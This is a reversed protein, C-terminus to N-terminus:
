RYFRSLDRINAILVATVETLKAAYDESHQGIGFAGHVFEHAALSMIEFRGAWASSFRCRFSRSNYKQNKVIEAPSLYYVLGYESSHECEAKCEEDFIFGISFAGEMDHLEYLRKLTMAWARVLRKAYASFQDGPLYYAPTEMGACQKCIFETGISVPRNERSVAVSRISGTPQSSAEPQSLTQVLAAIDLGPQVKPQKGEAKVKEGQYRKYEARQQKLASRTDVALEDLLQDLEDAYRYQLRDRSAVLRQGSTGTLEVLVCGKFKINRTFMPQGGIRVVLLNSFQQNSYVKGWEYERRPSGKHLDTALTQSNVTLTGKWQALAAFREFMGVLRNVEDGEMLVTTITGHLRDLDLTLLYDGGEGEAFLTGTRISWNLHCAVLLQKAVGFGGVGSDKASGGLTLFKNVLVAETMPYGNNSVAVQTNAGKREIVVDIRTSSCDMSNQLIERVWAWRWDAYDARARAFFERGIKFSAM